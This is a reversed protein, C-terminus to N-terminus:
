TNGVHPILSFLQTARTIRLAYHTMSHGYPTARTGDTPCRVDAKPCAAQGTALPASGVPVAANACHIVILGRREPFAPDCGTKVLTPAVRTFRSEIFLRQIMPFRKSVLRGVEAIALAADAAAVGEGFDLDM